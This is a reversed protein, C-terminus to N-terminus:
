VSFPFPAALINKSSNLAAMFNYLACMCMCIVYVIYAFYFFRYIMHHLRFCIYASRFQLKRLFAKLRRSLMTESLLYAGFVVILVSEFMMSILFMKSRAKGFSFFSSYCYAVCFSGGWM